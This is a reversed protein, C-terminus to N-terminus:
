NLALISVVEVEERIARILVVKRQATQIENAILLWVIAECLNRNRRYIIGAEEDYFVFM